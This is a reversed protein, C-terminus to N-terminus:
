SSMQMPCAAPEELPFQKPTPALFLWFSKESKGRRADYGHVVIKWQIRNNSALFTHMAGAPIELLGRHEWPREPEIELNDVMCLQQCHVMKSETRTDSGQRYHVSEECVFLVSLTSLSLPGSQAVYLECQQGALLPHASIEVITRRDGRVRKLAHLTARWLGLGILGVFIYPLPRAVSGKMLLWVVLPIAIGWAISALLLSARASIEQGNLRFALKEGARPSYVARFPLSLPGIAHTM